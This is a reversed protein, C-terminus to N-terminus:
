SILQKPADVVKGYKEDVLQALQRAPSKHGYRMRQPLTTWGNIMMDFNGVIILKEKARSIAVNLDQLNGTAGVIKETNNRVLSVVVIDAQTGLAGTTTTVKVNTHGMQHQLYNKIQIRQGQYRTVVVISKNRTIRLLHNCIRACAKAETNNMWSSALIEEEEGNIDVWTTVEDPQVIQRYELDPPSFLTLRRSAIEHSSKLGGYRAFENVLGSLRDPLRHTIRLTDSPSRQLAWEIASAERHALGIPRSQKPDGIITATIGCQSVLEMLNNIQLNVGNNRLFTSALQNVGYWFPSLLHELKEIGAEDILMNDFRITYSLRKLSLTTCIIIRRERIREIDNSFPIQPPLNTASENGTRVCLRAAAEGYINFLEWAFEDAAANTFAVLLIRDAKGEAIMTMALMSGLTTKGCGPPGIVVAIGGNDKRWVLVRRQEVDLVIKM